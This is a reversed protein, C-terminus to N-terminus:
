MECWEKLKDVLMFWSTTGVERIQEPSWWAYDQIERVDKEKMCTSCVGLNHIRHSFVHKATTHFVPEKQLGFKEKLLGPIASQNIENM